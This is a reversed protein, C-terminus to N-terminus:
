KNQIFKEKTLKRSLKGTNTEVFQKMFHIEKPIEYKSLFNSLDAIELNTNGGEILLILKNNLLKDPLSSIMFRSEILSGIKSEINEPLVKIGGTEIANDFRGLWEFQKSDILKVIDNTQLNEVGIDNAHIILCDNNNVEFYCNSLGKFVTSTGIKKLAIHSITETMGFTSFANIKQEVLDKELAASVKGGGIIVEKVLLWKECSEALSKQVQLPVMATFDIKTELNGLPNSSPKQIILNMGSVLSRVIMMMGGVSTTPLCLLATKSTDLKFYASTMKASAIMYKKQHSIIKPVGTSGSTKIEITKKGENFWCKIFYWFNFEWDELVEKNLPKLCIKKLDELEYSNNKIIFM